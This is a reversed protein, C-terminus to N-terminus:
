KRFSSNYNELLSKFQTAYWYCCDTFHEQKAILLNGNAALETKHQNHQKNRVCCLTNYLVAFYNLTGETLRAM